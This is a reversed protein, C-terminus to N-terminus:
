SVLAFLDLMVLREKVFSTMQPTNPVANGKEKKETDSKIQQQPECGV